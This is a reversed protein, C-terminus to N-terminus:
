SNKARMQLAGPKSSNRYKPPPLVSSTPPSDASCRTLPLGAEVEGGPLVSPVLVTPTSQLPPLTSTNQLRHHVRPQAAPSPGTGHPVQLEGTPMCVSNHARQCPAMTNVCKYHRRGGVPHIRHTDGTYSPWGALSAAAKLVSRAHAWMSSCLQLLRWPRPPGARDPGTATKAGLEWAPLIM